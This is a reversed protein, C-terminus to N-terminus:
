LNRNKECNAKLRHYNERLWIAEKGDRNGKNFGLEAIVDAPYRKNAYWTLGDPFYANEPDPMVKTAAKYGIAYQEHFLKEAETGELQPCGEADGDADHEADRLAVYCAMLAGCVDPNPETDGSEDCATLLLEKVTEPCVPEDDSGFQNVAATLSRTRPSHNRPDYSPHKAM